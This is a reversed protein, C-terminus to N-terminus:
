RRSHLWRARELGQVEQAGPAPRHREAALAAPRRVRPLHAGQVVPAHGDRRQPRQWRAGGADHDIDRLDWAVVLNRARTAVTVFSPAQPHRGQECLKNTATMGNM